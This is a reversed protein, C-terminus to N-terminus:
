KVRNIGQKKLTDRLLPELGENKTQASINKTLENYVDPDKIGDIHLTLIKVLRAYRSREYWVFGIIGISILGLAVLLEVAEKKVFPVDKYVLANVDKSLSDLAPKLAGSVLNKAKAQTNSDLLASVISDIKAKSHKSNLTDLANQVVDSLLNQTEKKLADVITTVTSGMIKVDGNLRGIQWHVTDGIKKIQVTTTSGITNIAALLKKIDPDLKDMAGSLHTLATDIARKSGRGVGSMLSDGVGKGLSDAANKANRIPKSLDLNEVGKL